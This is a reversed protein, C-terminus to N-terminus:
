ETEELDILEIGEYEGDAFYILVSYAKNVLKEEVVKKLYDYHNKNQVWRIRDKTYQKLKATAQKKYPEPLKDIEEQSLIDKKSPEKAKNMWEYWYGEKFRESLLHFAAKNRLEETSADFYRDGHKEKAILIRKM